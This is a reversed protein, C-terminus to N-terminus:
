GNFYGEVEADNKSNKEKRQGLKYDEGSNCRFGSRREQGFVLSLPIDTDGEIKNDLLSGAGKGEKERQLRDDREAREKKGEV